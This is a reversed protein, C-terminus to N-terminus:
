VSRRLEVGDLGLVRENDEVEQAAARPEEFHEGRQVQLGALHVQVPVGLGYQHRHRKRQALHERRFDDDVEPRTAVIPELPDVEDSAVLPLLPEEELEM